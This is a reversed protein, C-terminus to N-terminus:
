ASGCHDQGERARHRGSEKGTVSRPTAFLSTWSDSGRCFAYAKLSIFGAHPRNPLRHFPTGGAGRWQAAFDQGYWRQYPRETRSLGQSPPRALSDAKVDPEAPAFGGYQRIARLVSDSTPALRHASRPDDRSPGKRRHGETQSGTSLNILILITPQSRQLSNAHEPSNEDGCAATIRIRNNKFGRQGRRSRLAGM